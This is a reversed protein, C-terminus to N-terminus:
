RQDKKGGRLLNGLIADPVIGILREIQVDTKISDFSGHSRVPVAIATPIVHLRRLAGGLAPVPVETQIDLTRAALDVSGSYSLRNGGIDIIFREYTVLGGRISAEIPPVNGRAIRERVEGGATGVILDEALELPALLGSGGITLEHRDISGSLLPLLGADLAVNMRGAKTGDLLEIELGRVVQPGRWQLTPREMSVQAPLVGELMRALLGAGIVRSLIAPMLAVAVVVMLLVAIAVKILKRRPKRAMHRHEHLDVISNYDPGGDSRAKTGEGM